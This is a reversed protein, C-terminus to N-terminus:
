INSYNPEEQDVDFERIFDVDQSKIKKMIEVRSVTPTLMEGGTSPNDMIVLPTLGYLRSWLHSVYAM